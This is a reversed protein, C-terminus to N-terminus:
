KKGPPNNMLTIIRERWEIDADVAAYYGDRKLIEAVATVRLEEFMSISGLWDLWEKCTTGDGAFAPLSLFAAILLTFLGPSRFATASAPNNRVGNGLEGCACGGTLLSRSCVPCIM